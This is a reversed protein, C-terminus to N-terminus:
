GGSLAGLIHVEDSAGVREALSRVVRTGVFVKMHPRVRDQEDVVRFKAGPCQRDLDNLVAAVSRGACEIKSRGGTYAHLVSGVHVIM